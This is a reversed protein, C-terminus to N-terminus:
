VVHDAGGGRVLEHIVLPNGATIRRYRGVDDAPHGLEALLGSVGEDGLGALTLTPLGGYLSPAGPTSREAILM